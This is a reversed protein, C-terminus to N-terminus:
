KCFEVPCTLVVGLNSNKTNADADNSQSTFWWRIGKFPFQYIIKYNNAKIFNNVEITDLPIRTGQFLVMPRKKQISEMRLASDKPSFLGPWIVHYRSPNWTNNVFVAYLADEGMIALAVDPKTKQVKKIADELENIFHFMPRTVFSGKLFAPSELKVLPRSFNQVSLKSKQYVLPLIAVFLIISIERLKSPFLRWIYYVFIGLTPAISWFIQTM